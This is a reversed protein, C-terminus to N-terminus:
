KNWSQAIEELSKGKTEPVWFWVVVLLVLCFAAYVWFPFGHHFRALLWPDDNMMPFTQSVVYNALWLCITAIGMARGRIQTPFIESLIVWTVPGVSMAFAAIYVLVFVLAWWQFLQHYAALGLATLAVGMGAAGILMLPRRGLRDVVGIALITFAMNVAGVIVTQLMAADAGAGLSEFIKPAFYLFVNVGTVQQLVALAVGLALLRQMRPEWLESLRGSERAINEEISRLEGQAYEAGDVRTLIALAEDRRQQKTLWRPSEPVLILLLLFALAPAVGSGFMWRWGYQVNWGLRDQAALDIDIPKTAIGAKTLFEAVAKSDLSERRADILQEIHRRNAEFLWQRLIDRVESPALPGDGGVVHKADIELGQRALFQSVAQRDLVARPEILFKEIQQDVMGPIETELRTRVFTADLAPGHQAIYADVLREDRALGHATIFYNVFYVILMGSVIAFQNLSVMRGRIRFPTIEAIYMPSTISAAGIGIGGIFRFVNFEILTRPLATGLASVFFALAALILMKKRGFRDSLFGASGAGLACGALAIAAAFGEQSPTLVFRVKLNGIAGAIVATDYGFLLGGLAAVLTLLYVYTM